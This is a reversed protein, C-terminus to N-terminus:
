RIDNYFRLAFAHIGFDGLPMCILRLQTLPTRILTGM